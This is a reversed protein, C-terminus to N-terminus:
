SQRELTIVPIIRDAKERYEHFFPYKAAMKEFLETREPESLVQANAKFKETGVEIAVDPNAVVNYYWDPNSPAGGKSAIIVWRDGDQITALPNLRPKGSKAGITHLLLLKMNKFNGGVIGDNTRFEEIVKRNWDNVDSM